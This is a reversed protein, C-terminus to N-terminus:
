ALALYAQDPDEEPLSSLPRVRAARVAMGAAVLMVSGLVVWRALDVGRSEGVPSASLSESPAVPTTGVALPDRAVATANVEVAKAATAAERAHEREGETGAVTTNHKQEAELAAMAKDFEARDQVEGQADIGFHEQQAPSFRSFEAGGEARPPGQPTVGQVLWWPETVPRSIVTANEEVLIRKKNTEYQDKIQDSWADQGAKPAFQAYKDVQSLQAAKWAKLCSMDHCDTASMATQNQQGEMYKSYESPVYSSFNFDAGGASSNTNKPVFSQWDAGSGYKKMFDGAGGAAMMGTAKPAPPTGSSSSTYKSYDTYKSYNGYDGGSSGGTYKSYNSYDAGGSSGNGGTYKSYDGYKKMYGSYGSSGSSNAMLSGGSVGGMYKSYDFSSLATASGTNAQAGQGGSLYQSYDFSGGGAGKKDDKGGEGGTSGHQGNGWQDLYQQYNGGQPAAGASALAAASTCAVTRFM